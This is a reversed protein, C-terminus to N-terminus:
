MFEKEKNKNEKIEMQEDKEHDWEGEEEISCLVLTSLVGAQTWATRPEFGSGFLSQRPQPKDHNEETGWATTLITDWILDHGSSVM